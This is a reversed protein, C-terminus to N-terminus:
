FSWLGLPLAKQGESIPFGIWGAGEGLLHAIAARQEPEVEGPGYPMAYGAVQCLPCEVFDVWHEGLAKSLANSHRTAERELAKEMEQIVKLSSPEEPEPIEVEREEDEGEIQEEEEVDPNAPEEIEGTEANVGPPATRATM